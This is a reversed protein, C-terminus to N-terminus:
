WSCRIAAGLTRAISKVAVPRDLEPDHALYVVGVGGRGLQRIVRHRGFSPMAEAGFLALAVRSLEEREGPTPAAAEVVRQELESVV